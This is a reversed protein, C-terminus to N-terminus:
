RMSVAGVILPLESVEQLDRDIADVGHVLGSVIGFGM